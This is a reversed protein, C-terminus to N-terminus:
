YFKARNDEIEVADKQAEYAQYVARSGLVQNLRTKEALVDEDTGKNISVVKVLYVGNNGVIPSSVEDQPLSSLTGIVAPEMGVSPISTSNFTLGNADNVEANLSAAIADLDTGTAADKMKQALAKGKNLKKVALEVRPKVEEFSAIGEKTENTLAAVVFQDGLEFIASGENNHLIKKIDTQYAARILPRSDALGAIERDNEGITALKKTLKDNAIAESFSKYDQNDSVFRSAQAYVKQYTQTSPEVARALTALRVQKVEKGKKTPQILHVGFQSTTTYLQNVEGNFAAEEFPKVM